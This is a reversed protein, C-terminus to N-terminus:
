TLPQWTTLGLSNFNTRIQTTTTPFYDYHVTNTTPDTWLNAWLTSDPTTYHGATPTGPTDNITGTLTVAGGNMFYYTITNPETPRAVDLEATPSGAYEASFYKDGVDGLQTIYTPGSVHYYASPDLCTILCGTYGTHWAYVRNTGNMPVVLSLDVQGDHYGFWDDCGITPPGQPTTGPPPTLTLTPASYPAQSTDPSRPNAIWVQETKTIPNWEGEVIVKASTGDEPLDCATTTVAKTVGAMNINYAGGYQPQVLFGGKDGPYAPDAGAIISPEDLAPTALMQPGTDPLWVGDPDAIRDVGISHAAVTCDTTCQTSDIQFAQALGGVQVTIQTKFPSSAAASASWQNNAFEIPSTATMALASSTSLVQYYQRASSTTGDLYTVGVTFVPGKGQRVAVIPLQQGSGFVDLTDFAYTGTQLAQTVSMTAGSIYKSSWGTAVGYYTEGAVAGQVPPVAALNTFVVWRVQAVSGKATPTFTYPIAASLSEVGYGTSDGCFWQIPASSSLLGSGDPFKYTSPPKGLLGNTFGFPLYSVVQSTVTGDAAYSDGLDVSVTLGRPDTAAVVSGDVAHVSTAVLSSSYPTFGCSRVDGALASGFAGLSLFSPSADSLYGDGSPARDSNFSSPDSAPRTTDQKPVTTRFLGCCYTTPRRVEVAAKQEPKPDPRTCTYYGQLLDLAQGFNATVVELTNLADTVQVIVSVAQVPESSAAFKTFPVNNFLSGVTRGSQYAHWVDQLPTNASDAWKPDNFPYQMKTVTAFSRQGSGTYLDHTAVTYGEPCQLAHHEYNGFQVGKASMGAGAIIEKVTIRVTDASAPPATLVVAVLTAVLSLVAVLATLFRRTM